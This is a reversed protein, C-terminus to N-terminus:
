FEKQKPIILLFAALKTVADKNFDDPCVGRIDYEHFIHGKIELM